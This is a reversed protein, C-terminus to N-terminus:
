STIELREKIVVDIYECVYKFNNNVKSNPIRVVLLDRKELKETRIEDNLLGQESYHQKGDIEIILRADRCYFDVIFNDIVKQRLIRVPYAQLFDYWLRKEEKTMNKRLLKANQTLDKNHKYNNM